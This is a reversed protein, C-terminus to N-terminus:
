RSEAEDTRLETWPTGSGARLDHYRGEQLQSFAEVKGGPWRVILRHTRAESAARELGFLLRSDSASLYSGGGRRYALSSLPEGALRVVAGPASRSPVLRVGLWRGATRNELLRAPGGNETVV